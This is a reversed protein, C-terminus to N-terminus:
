IKPESKIRFEHSRKRAQEGQQDRLRRRPRRRVGSPLHTGGERTWPPVSTRGDTQQPRETRLSQVSDRGRSTPSPGPQSEDGPRCGAPVELSVDTKRGGDSLPACRGSHVEGGTVWWRPESQARLRRKATSPETGSPARGHFRGSRLKQERLLKRNESGRSLKLAPFRVHARTRLERFDGKQAQGAAWVTRRRRTLGRGPASPLPARTRRPNAPWLLADQPQAPGAAPVQRTSCRTTALSPAKASVHARYKGTEISPASLWPCFGLSAIAGLGGGSTTLSASAWPGQAWSYHAPAKSLSSASPRVM